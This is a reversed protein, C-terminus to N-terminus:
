CCRRAGLLDAADKVPLLVVHGVIVAAAVCCLGAGWRPFVAAKRAFLVLTVPLLLCFILFAFLRILPNQLPVLTPTRMLPVSRARDLLDSHEVYIQLYFRLMVLVASGLLMFGLFSM